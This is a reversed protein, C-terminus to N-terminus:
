ISVHTAGDSRLLCIKDRSSMRQVQNDQCELMTPSHSIQDPMGHVEKSSRLDHMFDAFDKSGMSLRAIHTM